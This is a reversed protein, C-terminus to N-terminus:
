DAMGSLLPGVGDGGGDDEVSLYAERPGAKLPSFTITITCSAGAPIHKPCNATASFAEYNKGSIGIPWALNVVENGTNTLQITQPPSTTGVKQPAFELSPPSFKVITGTGFLEIVQPKTSAGDSITVTGEVVGKVEPTFGATIICHDGPSLSGACTDNTIQFPTGSGTVSSVAVPTTGSNTLTTSLTPSPVGLLRTAFKLPSAPSFTIVGTNLLTVLYGQLRDMTILDLQRDGNFDGVALFNSFQGAHFVIQPQFTGDGNGLLISVSGGNFGNHGSNSIIIDAKGDSNFDAVTVWDGLSSLYDVRVEFTGDGNGLFVGVSIGLADPVVLDLRGDGRFDGVAISEGNPFSPYSAEAAFAGDGNGSLILVNGTTLTNTLVALDLTGDRDFDGAAIGSIGVEDLTTRIPGSFTGDGKNLFAVIGHDALMVLDFKHDGNFDGTILWEPGSSTKLTPQLRFTGDGNGFLISVSASLYNTVALDLEGDGNFDAVAIYGPARGLNYTIPSQFTGDGNGLFINLKAGTVAVDLNGDHNFDGVGISTSDDVTHVYTFARTELQADAPLVFNLGYVLAFLSITFFKWWFRTV